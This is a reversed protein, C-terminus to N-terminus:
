RNKRRKYSEMKKNDKYFVDMDIVLFIGKLSKTNKLKLEEIVSKIMDEPNSYIKPRPVKLGPYRDKLMAQLYNRETEGECYINVVQKFPKKSM